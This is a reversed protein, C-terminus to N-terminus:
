LQKDVEERSDGWMANVVWQESPFKQAAGKHLDSGPQHSYPQLSLSM